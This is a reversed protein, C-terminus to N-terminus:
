IQNVKKFYVQAAFLLLANSILVSEINELFEYNWSNKLQTVNMLLWIFHQKLYQLFLPFFLFLLTIGEM